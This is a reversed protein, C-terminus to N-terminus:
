VKKTSHIETPKTLLAFDDDERRGNDSFNLQVLTTLSEFVTEDIPGTLNNGRLDLKKLSTLTSLAAPVRGTFKESSPCLRM